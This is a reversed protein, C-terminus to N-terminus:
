HWVTNKLSAPETSMVSQVKFRLRVTSKTLWVKEKSKTDHLTALERVVIDAEDLFMQMDLVNWQLKTNLKIHENIEM